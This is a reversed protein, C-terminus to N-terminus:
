SISCAICVCVNIFLYIVQEGSCLIWSCVGYHLRMFPGGMFFSGDSARQYFWYGSITSRFPFLCAHKGFYSGVTARDAIGSRSQEVQVLVSAAVAAAWSLM